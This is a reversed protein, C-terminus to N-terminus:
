YRTEVIAYNEKVKPVPSDILKVSGDNVMLFLQKM